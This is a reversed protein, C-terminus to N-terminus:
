RCNGSATCGALLVLDAAVDVVAVDTIGLSATREPEVDTSEPGCAVTLGLLGLCGAARLNV